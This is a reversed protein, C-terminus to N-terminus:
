HLVRNNIRLGGRNGNQTLKRSTSVYIQCALKGNALKQLRQRQQDSLV